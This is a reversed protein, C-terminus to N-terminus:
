AACADFGQLAVRTFCTDSLRSMAPDTATAATAATAGDGAEAELM